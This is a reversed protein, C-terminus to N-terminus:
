FTKPKGSTMRATGLVFWRAMRKFAVKKSPKARSQKLGADANYVVVQPAVSFDASTQQKGNAGSTNIIEEEEKLMSTNTREQM